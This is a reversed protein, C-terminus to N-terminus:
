SHLWSPVLSGTQEMCRPQLYLMFYVPELSLHGHKDIALKDIYTIIGCLIDTPGTCTEKYACCYVHGTDVDALHSILAPPPSLPNDPNPFQLNSDDLALESYLLSEIM